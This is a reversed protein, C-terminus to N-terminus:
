SLTFPPVQVQLRRRLPLRTVYVQEPVARAHRTPCNIVDRTFHRTLHTVDKDNSSEWLRPRCSGVSGACVTAAVTTVQRLFRVSGLGLGDHFLPADDTLMGRNLSCFRVNPDAEYFRMTIYIRDVISLTEKLYLLWREVWLPYLNKYYYIM